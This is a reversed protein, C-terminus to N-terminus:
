FRGSVVAGAVGPGLAPAVRTATPREKSPSTLLLYTGTGIAAAGVGWFVVGLTTYTKGKSSLDKVESERASPCADKETCIADLEDIQDGRLKWMYFGGAAAVVGGGVLLWPLIPAGGSDATPAPSTPPPAPAPTPADPPPPPAPAAPTGEAAAELELTSTKGESATLEHKQEKGALEVVLLHNGPNVPIPAELAAVSLPQGDLTVRTPKADGKVRLALMPVRPRLATLESQAASEVQQNKETKALEAAREFSVIAEVLAGTKSECLGVHFLIQPTKKVQAARRFLELAKGWESKDELALGDTFWQKAAAIESATQALASGPVAGLLALGFLAGVFRPM